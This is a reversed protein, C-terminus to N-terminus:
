VRVLQLLGSFISGNCTAESFNRSKTAALKKEAQGAAVSFTNESSVSFLLSSPQWNRQMTREHRVRRFGLAYKFVTWKTKLLSLNMQCHSRRRNMVLVVNKLVRRTEVEFLNLVPFQTSYKHNSIYFFM